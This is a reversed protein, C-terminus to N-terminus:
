RIASILETELQSEDNVWHGYIEIYPLAQVYGNLKIEDQMKGGAHAILGYPGVHKYYAYRPLSITKHELGSQTPAIQDLEVGAFVQDGDEYVWINRGKNKIGLPKLLNWMKGSLQFAMGAYDKDLAVGSFGYVELTLPHEIVETTM